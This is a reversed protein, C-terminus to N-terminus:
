NELISLNRKIRRLIERTLFNFCSVATVHWVPVLSFIRSLAAPHFESPLGVRTGRADGTCPAGRPRGRATRPLAIVTRPGACRRNDSVDRCRCGAADPRWPSGAGSHPVAGRAHALRLGPERPRPHLKGTSLEAKADQVADPGKRTPM